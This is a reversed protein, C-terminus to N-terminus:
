PSFLIQNALLCTVQQHLFSFKLRKQTGCHTDEELILPIKARQEPLVQTGVGPFLICFCM